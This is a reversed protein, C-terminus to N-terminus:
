PIVTDQEISEENKNEQNGLTSRKGRSIGRCTKRTYRNQKKRSTHDKPTQHAETITSSMQFRQAYDGQAHTPHHLYQQTANRLFQDKVSM